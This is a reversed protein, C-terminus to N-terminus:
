STTTHAVETSLYSGGGLVAHIARPLEGADAKVVYGRAGAALMEEAFLRESTVSLVIVKVGPHSELLRGLAAVGNLGPMRIDM